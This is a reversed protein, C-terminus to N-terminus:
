CAGEIYNVIENEAFICSQTLLEIARETVSNEEVLIHVAEEPTYINGYTRKSILADYKDACGVLEAGFCIQSIVLNGPYGKGSPQEHHQLVIDKTTDSLDDRESIMEYGYVPHKKIINYEEVTLSGPKDLINLSISLKGIDHILAGLVIEEREVSNCGFIDTMMATIIGVNKSHVALDQSFVNMDAMLYQITKDKCLHRVYKEAEINIVNRTLM